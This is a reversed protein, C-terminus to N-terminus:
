KFDKTKYKYRKGRRSLIKTRMVNVCNSFSGTNVILSNFASYLEKTCKKKGEADTGHLFYLQFETKFDNLIIIRWTDGCILICNAKEEVKM